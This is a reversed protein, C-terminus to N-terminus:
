SGSPPDAALLKEREDQKRNRADAAVARCSGCLIAVKAALSLQKARDYLRPISSRPGASLAVLAVEIEAGDTSPRRGDFYM